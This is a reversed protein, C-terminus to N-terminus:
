QMTDRGIVIQMKIKLIEVTSLKLSCLFALLIPYVEYNRGYFDLLSYIINVFLAM